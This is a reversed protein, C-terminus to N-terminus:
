FRTYYALADERGLDEIEHMWGIIPTGYPHHPFLTAQVAENLQAGPDSDTRMRREEAVVDREPSVVDDTLVLNTMRDAEFEMLTPLHERAVRQFYATYDNSTFANERGGLEAVVESFEGQPHKTTGKFMLHELFHAIGSKTPPDDASGNRYWVMHTVVPSRRDPIVVVDMGNSLQFRSVDPGARSASGNPSSSSTTRDM